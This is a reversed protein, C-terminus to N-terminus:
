VQYGERGSSVCGACAAGIVILSAAQLVSAICSSSSHLRADTCRLSIFLTAHVAVKQVARQLWTCCQQQLVRRSAAM